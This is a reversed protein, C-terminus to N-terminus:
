LPSAVSGVFLCIGTKREQIAFFFPHDVKVVIPKIPNAQVAFAALIVTATSAAAETGHEDVAVVSQHFVESLALRDNPRRPAARDFNASGRPQDFATPMGLARLHAGLAISSGELRFRPLQLSVLETHNLQACDHLLAPTLSRILQALGDRAKPLLIVLQLDSGKYPITVVTFATKEQYNLKSTKRMTPVLISQTGPPYFDADSTAREAFTDKWAANLYVANALVLRTQPDVGGAPILNPIKGKTQEGVWRNISDRAAEPAHLFDLAVFPADYGSRLTELFAPYFGYDQQGFLRNAVHWEIGAQATAQDLSARLAATGSPLAQDNAPLHLVRAMEARTAGGAGAYALALSSAISYPSLALNEGPSEAAIRQYLDIGLQNASDAVPFDAASRLPSLGIVLISLM